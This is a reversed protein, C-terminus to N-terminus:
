YQTVVGPVRTTSETTIAGSFPTRRPAHLTSLLHPLLLNRCDGNESAASTPAAASTPPSPVIRLAAPLPLAPRSSAWRFADSRRAVTEVQTYMFTATMRARLTRRLVVGHLQKRLKKCQNRGRGVANKVLLQAVRLILQLDHSGPERLPNDHSDCHREKQGQRRRRFALRRALEM